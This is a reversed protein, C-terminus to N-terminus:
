WRDHQNKPQTILLWATLVPLVIDYWMITLGFGKTQWVAAQRNVFILQLLLRILVMGIAVFRAIWSGYVGIVILMAYFIGRTMPELGLRLRVSERYFTSAGLHRRKQRIWDTWNTKPISWTVSQPSVAVCTNEKNAIKHVLLDDDGSRLMMMHAFGEHQFFTSKRYMLNRGVGMYPCGNLAFGLYQMGSTLTEYRIVRNIWDKTEFYAGYGLIVECREGNVMCQADYMSRIWQKGVPRCDADTLLLWDYQAAKAALTIALKKTSRLRAEQPVFTCHVHPYTHVYEDIVAQTDDQSGDNVVIVEYLPYDQEALSHLYTRLNDAENRACVVVTVGEYEEGRLKLSKVKLQKRFAAGMYRIWFYLQYVWVAGLLALLWYDTTSIHQLWEMM